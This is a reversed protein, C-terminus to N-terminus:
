EIKELAAEAPGGIVLGDPTFRSGHCPCDWTRERVNWRVLCGMHTCIASVKVLEGDDTRHCAVPKGGITLVKGEGPKLTRVTDSRNRRLRDLIFHYPYDFNESVYTAVVSPKLTKRAPDLLERWPNDIGLVADHIMLAGLTGFTLGNGAYGTSVYQHPANEGIFPLRDSTEIVQGTWRTEIRASPFLRLFEEQVQGFCEETHSVTGTKHDGGGYIAYLGEDDRHIRLYRYPDSTDEYLGPPLADGGLRGGVVYTSYPYLKTQFLTAKTLPSSGVIPVHTAIFLDRCAVNEGNVIAVLPDQVAESVEAHEVIAVGLRATAAALGELYRLPHFVAQDPFAIAPGSGLPGAERYSGQIELARALDADERMKGDADGFFPSCLWGPVRAFGCDIGELEIISEILDIAITGGDWVLRACERGFRGALDTFRLDTIATLHASTNGTEGAGVREREVVAVRKGSKALLYAATLGTIGAGVVLVDVERPLPSTYPPIHATSRWLSEDRMRPHPSPIADSM